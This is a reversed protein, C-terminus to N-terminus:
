KDKQDENSIDRICVYKGDRKEFIGIYKGASIVKDTSDKVTMKGVETVLNADGFVDLTEFSVTSGAKRKTMSKTLSSEIAAKGVLMPEDDNMEVADDAYFSMVKTIDKATSAKAWETEIAQIESRIQVMDPKASESTTEEKPTTNCGAAIFLVVIAALSQFSSQTKM